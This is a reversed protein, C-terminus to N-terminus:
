RDKYINEYRNMESCQKSHCKKSLEQVTPALTGASGFVNHGMPLQRMQMAARRGVMGIGSGLMSANAAAYALEDLQGETPIVQYLVGEEEIGACVERLYDPDPQSVYILISPKNVVM